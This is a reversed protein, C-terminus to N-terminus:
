RDATVYSVRSVVSIFMVDRLDTEKTIIITATVGRHSSQKETQRHTQKDTVNHYASEIPRFVKVVSHSIFKARALGFM